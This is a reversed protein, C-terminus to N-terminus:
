EKYNVIKVIKEWLFDIIENEKNNLNLYKTLSCYNKFPSITILVNENDIEVILSINNKILFDLLKGITMKKAHYVTWDERYVLESQYITCFDQFSVEKAQSPTIHQKM